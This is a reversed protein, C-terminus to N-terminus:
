EEDENWDEGDIPKKNERVPFQEGGEYPVHEWVQVALISVRKGQKRGFEWDQVNFKVNVISGNGIKIDRDWDKGDPGVVRIPKNAEGEKNYAKKVFKFFKRPDKDNKKLKDAIGLDDFKQETEPDVLVEFEWQKNKEGPDYGDVPKGLAKFWRAEGQIMAM